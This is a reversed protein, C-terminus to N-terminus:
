EPQIVNRGKSLIVNIANFARLPYRSYRVPTFFWNVDEFCFSYLKM